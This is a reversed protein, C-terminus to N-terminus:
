TASWTRSYSDLLLFFFTLFFFSIDIKKFSVLHAQYDYPNDVLLQELAQLQLDTMEGQVDNDIGGDDSADSDDIASSGSSSLSEDDSM